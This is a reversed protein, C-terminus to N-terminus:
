SCLQLSGFDFLMAPALYARFTVLLIAALALLVLVSLLKQRTTLRASKEKGSPAEAIPVEAEM